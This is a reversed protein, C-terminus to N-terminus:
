LTRDVKLGMANVAVPSWPASTHPDLESIDEWYTQATTIPRDAGAGESGSSVTSVQLNGDGGDVKAARVLTVMGKVSTVNAPLNNLTVSMPLPVPYGAAVNPTAAPPNQALINYATTGTSPVWGGVTVDADPALDAVLCAGLFTNNISGLGDYVFLDKVNMQISFGSGNNAGQSAYQYINPGNHLHGAFDSSTATIVPIGEVRLEFTLASADFLGELHWWGNATVVPGPTTKLLYPDGFAGSTTDWVYASISGTTNIQIYVMQTNSADAWRMPFPRMANDTPLSSLWVRMGIGVKSTPTVLPRRIYNGGDNCRFVRGPSVGDPDSVLSGIADSYRGNTMFATNTGYINFNDAHILSM